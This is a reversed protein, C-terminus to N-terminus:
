LTERHAPSQPSADSAIAKQLAVLGVALLMLLVYVLVRWRILISESNRNPLDHM